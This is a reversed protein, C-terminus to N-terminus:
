NTKTLCGVGVRSNADISTLVKRKKIESIYQGVVCICWACVISMGHSLIEKYNNIQKCYLQAKLGTNKVTEYM